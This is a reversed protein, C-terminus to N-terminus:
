DNGLGQLFVQIWDINSGLRWVLIANVLLLAVMFINIYLILPVRKMFELINDFKEWVKSMETTLVQLTKEEMGYKYMATTVKEYKGAWEDPKFCIQPIPNGVVYNSKMITVQQNAPKGKPWRVPYSHDPLIFYREITTEIKSPTVWRDSSFTARSGKQKHAVEGKFVECIEEVGGEISAFECLHRGEVIQANNSRQKREYNLYLVYAIIVVIVLSIGIFAIWHLGFIYM